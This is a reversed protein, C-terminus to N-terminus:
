SPTEDTSVPAAQEKPADRRYDWGDASQPYLVYHDAKSLWYWEDNFARALAANIEAIGNSMVLDNDNMSRDDILARETGNERDTRRSRLWWFLMLMELPVEIWFGFKEGGGKSTMETMTTMIECLKAADAMVVPAPKPGSSVCHCPVSEPGDKTWGNGGCTRCLPAAERDHM